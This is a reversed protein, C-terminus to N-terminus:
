NSPKSDNNANEKIYNNTFKIVCELFFVSANDSILCAAKNPTEEANVYGDNIIYVAYQGGKLLHYIAKLKERLRKM